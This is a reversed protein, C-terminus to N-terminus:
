DVLHSRGEQVREVKGNKFHITIEGYAKSSIFKEILLLLKKPIM